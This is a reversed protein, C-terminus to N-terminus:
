GSLIAATPESPAHRGPAQIPLARLGDRDSMVLVDSRASTVADLVQEVSWPAGEDTCWHQVRAGTANAVTRALDPDAPGVLLVTRASAVHTPLVRRDQSLQAVHGVAVAGAALVIGIPFRMSHLTTPDVTATVADQFLLYAGTIAAVVAALAGVGVLLALYTRRV